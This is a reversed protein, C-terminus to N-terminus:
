SNPPTAVRTVQGTWSWPEWPADWSVEVDTAHFERAMRVVVAAAAEQAEVSAADIPVDAIGGCLIGGGEVFVSHRWGKETARLLIGTPMGFPPRKRRERKRRVM